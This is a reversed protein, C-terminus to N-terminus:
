GSRPIGEVSGSQGGSEPRETAETESTDGSNAESAPELALKGQADEPPLELEALGVVSIDARKAISKIDRDDSYITTARAVRAIAVIQRDYKLKAWTAQSSRQSPRKGGDIENRTMIAVEIAAREDFPEIRFVSLGNIQEVLQQAVLAEVRVLVESLAPTPIIIKTRAKELRQVLYRIREVPKDIPVNHPGTPVGADPRLLLMLTTADIVAM